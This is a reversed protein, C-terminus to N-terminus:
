IVEEFEKEQEKERAARNIKTLREGCEKIKQIFWMYDDESLFDGLAYGNKPFYTANCGLQERTVVYYKQTVIDHGYCFTGIKTYERPLDSYVLMGTIETIIRGKVGDKVSTHGKIHIGKDEKILELNFESVAWKGFKKWQVFPAISNELVTGVDGILYDHNIGEKSYVFKVKDGIKFTMKTEGVGQWCSERGPQGM